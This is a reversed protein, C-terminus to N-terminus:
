YNQTDKNETLKNGKLPKQPLNPGIHTHTLILRQTKKSGTKLGRKTEKQIEKHDCQTETHNIRKQTIKWRETTMKHIKVSQGATRRSEFRMCRRHQTIWKECIHWSQSFVGSPIYCVCVCLRWTLIQLLCCPDDDDGHICAVCHHLHVHHWQTFRDDTAEPHKQLRPITPSKQVETNLLIQCRESVFCHSLLLIEGPPKNNSFMIISSWQLM